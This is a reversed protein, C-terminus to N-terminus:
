PSTCAFTAFDQVPAFATGDPNVYAHSTGTQTDTITLNVGLNTLGSGFVWFHGGISCADLVKIIVETNSSSFFWFYGTDPTLSTATGHGSSASSGSGTAWDATVTFRSNTLHLTYPDTVSLRITATSTGHTNTEDGVVTLRVNVSGSATFTHTAPNDTSSTGDGFDWTVSAAHTELASFTVPVNVAAIWPSSPSTRTAGSTISYAVSPPPPGTSAGVTVSVEATASQSGSTAVVTVPYTGPSTFQHTNTGDAPGPTPPCGISICGEFDWAYSVTGGFGSATAAFSVTDNVSPNAPSPAALTVSPATVARQAVQVEGVSCVEYGVDQIPLFATGESNDYTKTVGTLTDTVTLQVELNTLGGAFVWHHGNVNCADLVKVVLELNNANFFWFYGSDPTLVVATGEGSTQQASSAWAAKVQYRGGPGLSLVTPDFVSFSAAGTGTGATSTGDGTVTLTVNPSGVTTFTHQVSAGSVPDTGDGFNWVWSVANTETATFTIPVGVAAQWANGSFNAGAISFNGSPLPTGTITISWTATKITAGNSGTVTVTHTGTNTFSYSNPNPGAVAARPAPVTSCVRVVGCGDGGGSGSGGGSGGGSAPVDGFDWMFQTPTYGTPTATFTVPAGIAATSPGALSLSSGGGCNPACGGGSVIYPLAGVVGGVEAKFYGSSVSSATFTVPGIGTSSGILTDNALSAPDTSNNASRYFTAGPYGAPPANPVFEDDFLYYTHGQTMQYGSPPVFNVDGSHGSGTYPAPVPTATFDTVTLPLSVQASRAQGNHDIYNYTLQVTYAGSAAPAATTTTGGVPLFSTPLSGSLGGPTLLYTVSNLTAASAKQMRNTLTLSAGKLVPNPAMTFNPVLDVQQVAGTKVVTYGGKYTATLSFGTATTPVTVVTGNASGSPSFTWLFSAEATNGQSASADGNNANGALVQLTNGDYGVISVAPPVFVLGPSVWPPVGDGNANHTQDGLYFTGGSAPAGVSSFCNTGTTPDGGSAPDCPLYAVPIDSHSTYAGSFAADPAFNAVVGGPLNVDWKITDLPAYSVSQDSVHFKDGFYNTSRGQAQATLNTIAAANVPPANPDANICSVDFTDTRMPSEVTPLGPPPPVLERYLYATLTSGTQKVLAEFGFNIYHAGDSSGYGPISRAHLPSGGQTLWKTDYVDISSGSADGSHIFLGPFPQPGRVIVRQSNGSFLHVQNVTGAVGDYKLVQTGSYGEAAFIFIQGNVTAIDIQSPDSIVAGTAVETLAGTAANIEAVHLVLDPTAGVLIYKDYNPVSVHEAKLRLKFTTTGQWGIAVSTEIPNHYDPLGSPTSLDALYVGSGEVPMYGFYKGNGTYVAAVRAGPPVRNPIDIQQGYGLNGSGTAMTAQAPMGSFNGNPDNPPPPGGQTWPIWDEIMRVTGSGDSNEAIDFFASGQHCDCLIPIVGASSGGERGVIISNYGTPDSPNNALSVRSIGWQTLVYLYDGNVGIAMDGSPPITGSGSPLPTTGVAPPTQDCIQALGPSVLALLGLAVGLALPKRLM